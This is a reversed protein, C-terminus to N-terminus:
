TTNHVQDSHGNTNSGSMNYYGHFQNGVVNHIDCCHNQSQPPICLLCKSNTTFKPHQLHDIWGAGLDNSQVHNISDQM